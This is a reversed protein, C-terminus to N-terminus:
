YDGDESNNIASFVWMGLLTDKKTELNELVLNYAQTTDGSIVMERIPHNQIQPTTSEVLWFWWVGFGSPDTFENYNDNEPHIIISGDELKKGIDNESYEKNETKDYLKRTLGKGKLNIRWLKEAPPSLNVDHILRKLGVGKNKNGSRVIFHYLNTGIGHGPTLVHSDIVQWINDAVHQLTVHGILNKNKDVAFYYCSNEESFYHVSFTGGSPNPIIGIPNGSKELKPKYIASKDVDARESKNYETLENYRM